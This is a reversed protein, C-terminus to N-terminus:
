EGNDGEKPGVLGFWRACMYMLYAIVSAIIVFSISKKWGKM